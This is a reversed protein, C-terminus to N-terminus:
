DRRTGQMPRMSPEECLTSTARRTSASRRCSRRWVVLLTLMVWWAVECWLWSLRRVERLQATLQRERELQRQLGGDDIAGMAQKGEEKHRGLVARLERLEREKSEIEANLRGELADYRQTWAEHEEQM